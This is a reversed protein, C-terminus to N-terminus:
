SFNTAPPISPTNELLGFIKPVSISQYFRSVTSTLRKKTTPPPPHHEPFTTSVEQFTHTHEQFTPSDEQFSRVDEQIIGRDERFCDNPWM